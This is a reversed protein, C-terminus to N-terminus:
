KGFENVITCYSIGLAVTSPIGLALKTETVFSPSNIQKSSYMFWGICCAKVAQCAQPQKNMQMKFRPLADALEMGFRDLPVPPTTSTIWRLNMYIHSGDEKPNIYTGLYIGILKRSTPVADPSQLPPFASEQEQNWPALFIATGLTSQVTLIYKKLLDIFDQLTKSSPPSEIIGRYRIEKYMPASATVAKPKKRSKAKAKPVPQFYDQTTLTASPNDTTTTKSPSENNKDSPITTEPTPTNETLPEPATLRTTNPEPTIATQANPMSQPTPPAATTTPAFSLKTQRQDASETREATTVRTQKTKM